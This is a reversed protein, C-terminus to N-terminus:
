EYEPTALTRLATLIGAKSPDIKVIEISATPEEFNECAERRTKESAGLSTEWYIFSGDGPEGTVTIRYFKM